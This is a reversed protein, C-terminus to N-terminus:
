EDPKGSHGAEVLYCCQLLNKLTKLSYQYQSKNNIYDACFFLLAKPISCTELLKAFATNTLTQCWTVEQNFPDAKLHM